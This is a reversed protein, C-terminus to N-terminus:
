PTTNGGTDASSGAEDNRLLAVLWGDEGRVCTCAIRGRRTLGSREAASWAFELQGPRGDGGAVPDGVLTVRAGPAAEEVLQAIAPRGRFREGSGAVYTGGATFLGAFAQADGRNWADVLRRAVEALAVAGRDPPLATLKVPVTIGAM